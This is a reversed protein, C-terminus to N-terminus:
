SGHRHHFGNSRMADLDPGSRYLPSGWNREREFEALQNDAFTQFNRGSPFYYYGATSQDSSSSSSSPPPVALSSGRLSGSRAQVSSPSSIPPQSYAQLAQVRDRARAVSSPYSPIMSSAVSTGARATSHGVVFPHTYSPPRQLDQFNRTARESFSAISSQDSGGGVHSISSSSPFPSSSHHEWGQYHIDMSPFAYSTPVESHVPPPPGSWHSNNFGVTDPVNNRGPNSSSPHPPRLYTVYPCPHHTLSATMAQLEAYVAATQPAVDYYTEPPVDIREDYSSPFGTLGGPPCWHVGFAMETYGHDYFDDDHVWDDMSQDHFPPPNNAYLWQGKEIKRCNPCQMSGKVNFASGICDLHFQHGCRLKAWSRKGDDAVDDLCISCPVYSSKGGDGDDMSDADLGMIM